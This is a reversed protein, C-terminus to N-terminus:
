LYETLVIQRHGATLFRKNHSRAAIVTCCHSHQIMQTSLFTQNSAPYVVTYCQRVPDYHQMIWVIAFKKKLFEPYISGIM